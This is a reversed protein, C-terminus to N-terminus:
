PVAGVEETQDVVKDLRGMWVGPFRPQLPVQFLDNTMGVPAVKRDQPHRLSPFLVFPALDFEDGIIVHVTFRVFQVLNRAKFSEFASPFIQVSLM